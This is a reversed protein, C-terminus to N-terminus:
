GEAKQSGASSFEGDPRALDRRERMERAKSQLDRFFDTEVIDVVDKRRRVEDIEIKLEEVQKRLTQERQYVKDVMIQFVQSLRTTEDAFLPANGLDALQDLSGAYDGEGIREAAQTLAVVPRTFFNSLLLVLAFLVGYTIVFALFTQQMISDQVQRVYDARFDIDLAAVM